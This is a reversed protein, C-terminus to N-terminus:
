DRSRGERPITAASRLHCHGRSPLVLCARCTIMTGTEKRVSESESTVVLIEFDFHSIRSDRPRGDPRGRRRLSRQSSSTRRALSRARIMLSAVVKSM